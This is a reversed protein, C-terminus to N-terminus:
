LGLRWRVILHMLLFFANSGFVVVNIYTLWRYARVHKEIRDALKTLNIWGEPPGDGGPMPRQPANM